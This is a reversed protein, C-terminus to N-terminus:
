RNRGGKSVKYHTDPGSAEPDLAVTVVDPQLSRFLDLIPKVDARLSPEPAFVETTAYFPLRLHQINPLNWGLYGWLVEAEYERCCGKLLQMKEDDKQGNYKALLQDQLQLLKELIVTQSVSSTQEGGGGVGAGASPGGGHAPPVGGRSKGYVELVSRVFRKSSGVCKRGEDEAAVGDLFTWVDRRRGEENGVDFYDNAHLQTFKPSTAIWKKANEIAALVFDDSVSNFGSTGCVFHHQNEPDRVHKLVFPLYGLMIDDHHPETHVFTQGSYYREGAEIKAILSIKVRECMKRFVFAASCVLDPFGNLEEFPPLGASVPGPAGTAWGNVSITAGELVQALPFSVALKRRVLVQALPFSVVDDM